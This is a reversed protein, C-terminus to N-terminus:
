WNKIKDKFYEALNKGYNEIYKKISKRIENSEEENCNPFNGEYDVLDKLTKFDNLIKEISKPFLGKYTKVIWDLHPNYANNIFIQKKYNDKDEYPFIDANNKANIIYDLDDREGKISVYIDILLIGKKSYATYMTFPIITEKKKVLFM